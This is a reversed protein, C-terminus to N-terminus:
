KELCVMIVGADMKWVAQFVGNTEQTGMSGLFGKLPKASFFGDADIASASVNLLFVFISFVLRKM